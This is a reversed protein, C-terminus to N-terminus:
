CSNRIAKNCDPCSYKYNNHIDCHGVGETEYTITVEEEPPCQCQRIGFIKAVFNRILRRM